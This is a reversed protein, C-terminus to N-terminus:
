RLYYLLFLLFLAFNVFQQVIQPHTADIDLRNPVMVHILLLSGLIVLLVLFTACLVM